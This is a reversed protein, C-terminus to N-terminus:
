CRSTKSCRLAGVSRTLPRVNKAEAVKFMQEMNYNPKVSPMRQGCNPGFYNKVVTVKMNQDRVFGDDQGLLMVKNKERLIMFCANHAIHVNVGRGDIDRQFTIWVICQIVSAAYRLTGPKPNIPDTVKYHILDKGVNNTMKGAYGVFCTALQPRHRRWEGATILLM